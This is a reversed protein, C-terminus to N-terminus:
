IKVINSGELNIRSTTMANYTVTLAARERKGIFYIRDLVAKCPKNIYCVVVNDGVQLTQGYRDTM